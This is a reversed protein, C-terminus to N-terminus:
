DGVVERVEAIGAIGEFLDPLTRLLDVVGYLLVGHHARLAMDAVDAELETLTESVGTAVLILAVLVRLWPNDAVRRIGAFFRHM